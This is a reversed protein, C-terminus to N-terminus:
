ISLKKCFNGIDQLKTKYKIYILIFSIYIYFFLANIKHVLRFIM